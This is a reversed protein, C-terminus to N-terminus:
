KPIFSQLSQTIQHRHNPSHHRLYSQSTMLPPHNLDDQYNDNKQLQKMLNDYSVNNRKNKLRKQVNINHRSKARERLFAEIELDDDNKLIEFLTARRGIAQQKLPCGKHTVWYINKLSAITVSLEKNGDLHLTQLSSLHAISRPLYKIHNYSIDLFQLSRIDFIDESLETFRNYSLDLENLNQLLSFLEPLNILKNRGLYLRKLEILHCLELPLQKIRNSRL